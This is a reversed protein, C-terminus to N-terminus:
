GRRGRLSLLFVAFIAMAALVIGWSLWVNSTRRVLLGDIDVQTGPRGDTMIEVQHPGNRLGRALPLMVGYADRGSPLAVDTPPSGDITVRLVAGRSNQHVVLQLETGCFTLRLVDGPTSSRRLAGLVAQEDKIEEWHGEWKLAWHDEQHYGIHVEPPQNAYDKVAEYVPLPTFDPEAMRFYYFVQDTETDTARKFFWYNLVGM